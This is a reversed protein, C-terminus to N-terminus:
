EGTAPGIAGTGLLRIAPRGDPGTARYRSAGEPWTFDRTNGWVGVTGTALDIDPLADNYWRAITTVADATVAESSPRRIRRWQELLNVTERAGPGADVDGPTTPVAPRIPKGYQSETADPDTVGHGLASFDTRTVDYAEYPVGGTWWPLLDFGGNGVVARFSADPIQRVDVGIGFSDLSRALLRVGILWTTWTPTQVRLELRDGGPGRWRGGGDRTYGAARLYEAARDPAAGVPYEHLREGLGGDLWRQESPRTLGTQLAAPDGWDGASALGDLPLACALARRVNARALHDNHWNLVIKAGSAARYRAVQEIFDPSAAGGEGLMGRGGDISGDGLLQARKNQMAVPLWVRPVALDGARPHGDFRELLLRNPSVESLEYPGCGAGQEMADSLSLTWGRLDGVVSEREAASEAGTLRDLWDAFLWAPTNHTGSVVRSLVLQRGLPRPLDYALTYEDLLEVSRAGREARTPGREPRAGAGDSATRRPGAVGGSGGPTSGNNVAESGIETGDAGVETGTAGVGTGTTTGGVTRGTTAADDTSTREAAARDVVSQIREGIWRDRATVPEGNWWTYTDDYTVRVRSGDIEVSEVPGAPRRRGDPTSVVRQEFFLSDMGWPYGEAWPNLQTAAPLYPFAVGFVSTSDTISANDTLGGVCGGLSASLAAAGGM